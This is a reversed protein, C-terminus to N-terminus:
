WPFRVKKAFLRELTILDDDTVVCNADIYIQEGFVRGSSRTFYECHFLADLHELWAQGHLQISDQEPTLSISLKRLWKATELPRSEKTIDRINRLEQRADGAWPYKRRRWLQIGLWLSLGLLVLLVIPLGLSFPEPTPIHIDRLLDISPEIAKDTM